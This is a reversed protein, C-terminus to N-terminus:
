EIGLRKLLAITDPKRGRFKMYMEMPDESSVKELINERFSKAVAKDFLGKEKFAACADADLVAAWQYSYYGAEYDWGVMHLFNTSLYRPLIEPILGMKQISGKEFQAVDIENTDSISHWDMDLIAAATYEITEFVPKQSRSETIQTILEQPIIEGTIYQKAYLKLVEPELALNEMFQSPLEVFDTISESSKPYAVNTLLYNLSHGFEHFLTSVDDISLLSPLNGVPKTFNGCIIAVPPIFNNKMNSQFTFNDQWAGNKKSGRPFFDTYLIGIHKGDAEKVEYVNAEPYFVQMGNLQTFTVGYLKNALTFAGELVNELKFYPRVSEEDFNFKDKSLLAYYYWYDWPEIKFNNGEKNVLQQMEEVEKKGKRLAPTLIDNLFKYVNEPSAAMRRKLKFDAYTNFGLLHAKEVRLSIVRSLIKKNDLDNNNNGRNMYAKYLKERLDRNQSYQLCPLLTPKDITFIWKGTLSKAAAKEQAAIISTEPLGKLDDAKDIVLEYRSNEERINEGFKLGLQSLDENIKRLKAKDKADLNAGGEVFDLYYKELVNKQEVSLNLKDKENYVSKIRSFLKDNLFIDDKHGAMMKASERAIRDMEPSGELSYLNNFVYNVKKLLKGSLEM